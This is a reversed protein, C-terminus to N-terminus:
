LRCRDGPKTEVPLTAVSFHPTQRDKFLEPLTRAAQATIVRGCVPAPPTCLPWALLKCISTYSQVDRVQM